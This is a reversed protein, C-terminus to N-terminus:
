NSVLSGYQPHVLPVDAIAGTVAGNDISIDQTTGTFTNGSVLFAGGGFNALVGTATGTGSVSTLNLTSGTGTVQALVGCSTGLDVSTLIMRAIGPMTALTTAISQGGVVVGRGASSACDFRSGTVSSFGNSSSANVQMGASSSNISSSSTISYNGDFLNVLGANSGYAFVGAILALVSGTGQLLFGSTSGAYSFNQLILRPSGGVQSAVQTVGASPGNAYVRNVSYSSSDGIRLVAGTAANTFGLDQILIASSAWELMNDHAMIGASNTASSSASIAGTPPRPCATNINAAPVRVAYGVANAPAAGTTAVTVQTATNSTIVAVVAGTDTRVFFKGRLDNVTWAQGSDTITTFTSGSGTSSSTIAGTATGTAVTANTLTGQITLGGTTQQVGTDGVFGSIYFCAYNGAAVNVVVGHRLMKPVKNLAGQITLCAATGTATCDNSDSGTPDVYLTIPATTAYVLNPANSPTFSGPNVPQFGNLGGSGVGNGGTLLMAIVLANM